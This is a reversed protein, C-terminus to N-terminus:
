LVEPSIQLALTLLVVLGFVMSVIYWRMRGTQAASLWHNFTQNIAVILGYIADVPESKLM